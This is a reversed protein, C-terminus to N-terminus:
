AWGDKEIVHNNDLPGDDDDYDEGPMSTTIIDASRLLIIEIEAECYEKKKM